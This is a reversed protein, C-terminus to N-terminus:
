TNAFCRVECFNGDPDRVFVAGDGRQFPLPTQVLRDVVDGTSLRTGFVLRPTGELQEERPQQRVATASVLVLYPGSGYAVFLQGNPRPVRLRGEGGGAGVSNRTPRLQGSVPDAVLFDRYHPNDRRTWPACPDGGAAWAQAEIIDTSRWGHYYDVRGGLVNVYLYECYDFHHIEIATHDLLGAEGAAVLQLRNGDPDCVYASLQRESPHDERWREIECGAGELERLLSEIRGAPVRLGHHQGGDSLTRPPARRIFGITERDQEYVLRGKSAQWQGSRGAFLREYFSRTADLDSAELLVGALRDLDVRGPSKVEALM